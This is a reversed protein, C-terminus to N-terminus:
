RTPPATRVLEPQHVAPRSIEQDMTPRTQKTELHLDIMRGGEAISRHIAEVIRVDILGEVGSAEPERNELICSSFEFLEPAFQDRKGFERNRTEGDVTVQHRLTATYSYAPSVLLDGRTGLVRYSNVQSSGFGCVFSAIKEDPFRLTAAVTEPVEDFREDGRASTASVGLPEERFLYRAANICYIGMDYVPGGGLEERLRIDGERVQQTFTSNFIRPRGLRGSAILQAAELNAKEFHLRYAIMLRVRHERASRIMAECASATVAMPKECLVHVGREAARVAYDRHLSNPLTLYVADIQGSELLRDYDDYRYLDEVGYRSGLTELKKEDSSVLAALQSNESAHEFAPLVAAQAIHGLGVVGYRVRKASSSHKRAPQNM